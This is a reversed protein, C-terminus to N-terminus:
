QCIKTVVILHHIVAICYDLCVQPLSSSPGDRSSSIRPALHIIKFKHFPPWLLHLFNYCHLTEKLWHVYKEELRRSGSCDGRRIKTGHTNREYKEKVPENEEDETEGNEVLSEHGLSSKSSM